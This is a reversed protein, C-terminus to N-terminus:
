TVPPPVTTSQMPAALQQTRARRQKSDADVRLPAMCQKLKIGALSPLEHSCRDFWLQRSYSGLQLRVHHASCKRLVGLIEAIVSVAIESRAEANIDLGMPAFVRKLQDHSVGAVLLHDFVRQMKRASGIMGICAIHSITLAAALFM